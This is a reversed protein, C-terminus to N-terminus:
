EKKKIKNYNLEAGPIPNRFATMYHPEAEYGDDVILM